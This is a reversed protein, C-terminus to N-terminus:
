GRAESWNPFQPGRAFAATLDLITFEATHANSPRPDPGTAESLRVPLSDFVQNLLEVLEPYSRIKFFRAHVKAPLIRWPVRGYKSSVGAGLCRIDKLQAEIVERPPLRRRMFSAVLEFIARGLPILDSHRFGEIPESSEQAISSALANELASWALDVSV